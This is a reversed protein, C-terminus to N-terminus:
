ALINHKVVRAPIEVKNRNVSNILRFTAFFSHLCRKKHNQWSTKEDFLLHVRQLHLIYM